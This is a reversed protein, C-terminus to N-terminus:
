FRDDEEGSFFLAIERQAAQPSDSAHVLNETTTLAFDGRITGPLAEHPNTDGVLRRTLAIANRGSWVMALVPGSTINQILEEYFDKGRHDRYHEEAKARSLVLMRAKELDLGKKELRGIIEGVLKRRVGDPKILVLTKEM